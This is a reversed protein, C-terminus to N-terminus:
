DRKSYFLANIQSALYNSQNQLQGLAAEMTAFKRELREQEMILRTDMDVIRTELDSIFEQVGKEATTIAGDSDTMDVLKDRLSVGIGKTFAVNVSELPTTATILLSLGNASNDESDLTLVQGRGKAAVGNITGEVDAGKVWTGTGSEGLGNTNTDILENGIGASGGTSNSASSQVTIDYSSGYRIRRLTLYDGTGTGDAGTAIATVGTKSSHANIASIVDSMTMDAKLEIEVGNVTLTEDATIAPPTEGSARAMAVGATVQARLAPQTVQVAYGEKGKGSAKTSSNSSVYSVYSSDSNVSSGFLKGVDRINNRLANSLDESNIVLKGSSDFTIGIASLCSFGKKLGAVTTGVLSQMQQEISLLQYNGLLAGSKGTESDYSTLYGIGTIMDNYSNVFGKIRNEVAAIDQSVNITLTRSEDANMLNLTVGSIVDTIKNSSKEVTIANGGTGGGIQLKANLGAQVPQSTDFVPATGGSLESTVTKISAAEGTDKSTLMLRYDPIDTTGANIISATVGGGAENIADKLATLTNNNADLTVSFNTGNNLGISFTGTGVIDNISTYAGSQSSFQSAQARQLVKLYYTGVVADSSASVTAISTDSVSVSKVNFGSIDVLSDSQLKLALVRTNVDRWAALKSEATAKKTELTRKPRGSIEVLKAIIEDTDLGSALGTISSTGAM